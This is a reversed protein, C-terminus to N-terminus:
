PVLTIVGCAIRPGGPANAVPPQAKYQDPLGHIIFASGDSDFLTTLGPTLTVRSTITYLTGVRNADVEMNQLDGLHYPHNELGPTVNATDNEGLVINGDYHGGATTFPPTCDGVAHIHVAHLGPTLPSTPDGKVEMKIWVRGEYEQELWADGIIGLGTIVAKAKIESPLKGTHYHMCGALAAIASVCVVVKLMKFVM